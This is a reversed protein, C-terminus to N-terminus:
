WMSLAALSMRALTFLFAVSNPIWHTEVVTLAHTKETERGM